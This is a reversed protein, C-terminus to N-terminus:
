GQSLLLGVEKARDGLVVRLLKAQEEPTAVAGLREIVEEDVNDVAARTEQLGADIRDFQGRLQTAVAEDVGALATLVASMKQELAVRAAKALNAEVRTAGSSIKFTIKDLDQYLGLSRYNASTLADRDRAEFMDDEETFWPKNSREHSTRTNFHVHETHPSTGTYPRWTGLGWSRSTIRRNYIVYQISEHRIAANIVKPVDVGDVDMDWADVSGDADPNHDSNTEQHAADGITGDSTKDRRPWRANVENRFRTLAPNLFWAM